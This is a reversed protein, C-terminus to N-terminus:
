HCMLKEYLEEDIEEWNKLDFLDKQGDEITWYFKNDIEAINLGGYYNEIKGIRTYEFKNM